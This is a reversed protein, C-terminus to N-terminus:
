RQNSIPPRTKLRAQIIFRQSVKESAFLAHQQGHRYYTLFTMQMVLLHAQDSWIDGESQRSKRLPQVCKFSMGPPQQLVGRELRNLPNVYSSMFDGECCKSSQIMAFIHAAFCTQFHSGM